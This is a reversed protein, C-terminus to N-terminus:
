TILFDIKTKMNNEKEEKREREERKGEIYIDKRNSLLVDNLCLSCRYISLLELYQNMEIGYEMLMLVLVNSYIELDVVM